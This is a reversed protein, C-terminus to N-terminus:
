LPFGSKWTGSKYTCFATTAEAMWAIVWGAFIGHIGFYQSLVFSAAIRVVSCVSTLFILMKMRAIGRYFSHFLNNVLNFLIFPLYFRAFLVAIDMSEGSFGSPFFLSCIPRAAVACLILPLSVFLVGQLFGAKVGKPLNEYKKAGVSQATYSTISKASNQYIAANLDYLKLSVAYGSSASAGLANVMPSIFFSALYMISQQIAVPFAYGAINKIQSFDFIKGIKGVGLERYCKRIKFFYMTDVIVASIVTSLALGAIGLKLVVTALLNGSINLVMSVISMFFPYSSLGLANFTHLFTHPFITLIFGAMYIRFYLAAENKISPAVNLFDLIGDCFIIAILSVFMGAASMSIVNTRISIKIKEGEKAGFLVAIYISAGSGFGWFLSSLFSILGSTSGIAALTSDGIFRGAIITDILNYSQSLLGSLVLPIAFVILTKYVNGKTLDKM